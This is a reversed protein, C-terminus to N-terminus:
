DSESAQRSRPPGPLVGTGELDEGKASLTGLSTCRSLCPQYGRRDAFRFRLSDWPPIRSGSCTSEQFVVGVDVRKITPELILSLFPPGYAQARLGIDMEFGPVNSVFFSGAPADRRPRSL